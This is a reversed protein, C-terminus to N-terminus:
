KKDALKYLRALDKQTLRRKLRQNLIIEGINIEQM